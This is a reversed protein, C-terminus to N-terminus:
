ARIQAKLPWNKLFPNLAKLARKLPSGSAPHTFKPAESQLERDSILSGILISSFRSLFGL